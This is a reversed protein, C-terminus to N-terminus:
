RRLSERRRSLEEAKSLIEDTVYSRAAFVKGGTGELWVYGLGVLKGLVYLREEKTYGQRQWLIEDVPRKMELDEILALAFDIMRQDLSGRFTEFYNTVVMRLWNPFATLIRLLISIPGKGALKSGGEFFYSGGGRLKMPPEPVLRWGLAGVAAFVVCYGILFKWYSTEQFDELWVTVATLVRYLLFLILSSAVFAIVGLIFMMLSTQRVDKEREHVDQTFLKRLTGIQHRPVAM